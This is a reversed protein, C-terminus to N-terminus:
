YVFGLCVLTVLMIGTLVYTGVKIEKFKFKLMELATHFVIGVAIGATINASIATVVVMLLPPLATNVDSFDVNKLSTLMMLGVYLMLGYVVTGNIFLGNFVLNFLCVIMLLGAVIASLGTKGGESGGVATESRVVVPGAGLMCGLASSFANVAYVNAYPAGKRLLRDNQTYKARGEEDLGDTLYGHGSVAAGTESVGLVLFSIVSVLFVGFVAGGGLAESLASFDFGQQFATFLLQGSFMRTIMDLSQYFYMSGYSPTIFAYLYYDNFNRRIGAWAVLYVLLSAGFSIITAHKIKFRKLVTMVLFAVIAMIVPMYAYWNAPDSADLNFKIYSFGFFSITSQTSGMQALKDEFNTTQVSFVNMQILAYVIVFAGLAAPIVKRISNPVANFIFEKAPKILMVALYILNSVLAIAMINAYTLGTYRGFISIILVILGLSMSQVFPVNCLVGMLVSSIVSILVTAFYIPYYQAFGTNSQIMFASVMMFCAVEVFMLIGAFIETKINTGRETFGFYRDVAQYAKSPEKVPKEKKGKHFM